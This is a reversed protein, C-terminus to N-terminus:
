YADIIIFSADDPVEYKNILFRLADACEEVSFKQLCKEIESDSLIQTVGDTCLLFRNKDFPQLNIKSVDVMVNPKEGMARGIVNTGSHLFAEKLTLFGKDILQQIVSHDKTLLNLRGNKLKYLRSDGVHGWYATNNTLYLIVLTSALKREDPNNQNLGNLYENTQDIISKIMNLTDPENSKDILEILKEACLKAPNLQDSGDGVGDCIIGLWGDNLEQFRTYDLNSLKQNGKTSFSTYSLRM